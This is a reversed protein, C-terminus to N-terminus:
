SSYRCLILSTKTIFFMVIRMRQRTNTTCYHFLHLQISVFVHLTVGRSIRTSATRQHVKCNFYFVLYLNTRNIIILILKSWAVATSWSTRSHSCKKVGNCFRVVSWILGTCINLVLKEFMMDSSDSCAICTKCATEEASTKLSFKWIGKKNGGVVDL